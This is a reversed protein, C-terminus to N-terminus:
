EKRTLWRELGEPSHHNELAAVLADPRDAWTFLHRHETYIFGESEAHEVWRLLPDFFGQINLLGIPKQHLGIQAWTLIEFFEDLTGFGGPLAIFADALQAMRAKRLHMSDVVELCSLGTHVLAPTNFMQPIVGVVSGGAELVADAVVGMLGTRGAGYILQLGRQALTQGMEQAATRYLAPMRDSSGCYICISHM